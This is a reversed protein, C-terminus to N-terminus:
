AHRSAKGLWILSAMRGSRAGDRRYSYFRADARTDLGGGFIRTVGLATLRQRALKYLDCRWHGPRTATFATAAGPSDAVLAARVEDGVEYSEAGIAPGLWALLRAVPTAMRLVCAEIVGGALGRWGVHIAAIEGGDDACLLIPLCDATQIALVVGPIATFAADAQPEGDPVEETMRIVRDGHVQQLWRPPSPLDFARELLARNARVTAADEGSRLGLNFADYPPRSNGPLARTTTFTRVCRPAPWDPLIIKSESM